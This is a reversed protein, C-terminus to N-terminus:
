KIRKFYDFIYNLIRLIDKPQDSNNRLRENSSNEQLKFPVFHSSGYKQTSIQNISMFQLASLLGKQRNKYDTM